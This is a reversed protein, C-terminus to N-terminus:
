KIVKVILGTGTKHKRRVDLYNCVLCIPMVLTYYIPLAIYAWKTRNLWVIPTKMSLKWSLKGPRGYSYKVQINSFGATQLKQTIDEISYGDRVHEDIFSHDDEDHVDSGGQDSPTSILLMGGPKLSSYFRKFVEVDEEIHEMVDVSLILDYTDKREYTTLDGYEFFVRHGLGIEDFFRNCDKIQETKLDVAEITSQPFLQALFYSYQGFGSGADLMQLKTDQRNPWKKLTKRIHWTRLLLTDLLKYFLIRMWPHRNFFVGLQSKIPDYKM